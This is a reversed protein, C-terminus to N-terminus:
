KEYYDFSNGPTLTGNSASREFRINMYEYAKWRYLPRGRTVDSYVTLVSQM